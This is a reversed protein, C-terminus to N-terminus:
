CVAAFVFLLRAAFSPIPIIGLCLWAANVAARMAYCCRCIPLFFPTGMQRPAKKQTRGLAAAAAHHEKTSDTDLAAVRVSRPM